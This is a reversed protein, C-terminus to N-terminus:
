SFLLTLECPEKNTYVASSCMTTLVKIKVFYEILAPNDAVFTVRLNLNPATM